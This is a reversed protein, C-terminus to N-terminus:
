EAMLSSFHGHSVHLDNLAVELPFEMKSALVCNMAVVYWFEGYGSGDRRSYSKGADLTGEGRTAMQQLHVTTLKLIFLGASFQLAQVLSEAMDGSVKLV